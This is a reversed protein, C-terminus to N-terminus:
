HKSTTSRHPDAATCFVYVVHQCPEDDDEDPIIPTGKTPFPKEAYIPECVRIKRGRSKDSM